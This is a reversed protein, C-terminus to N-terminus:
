APALSVRYQIINNQIQLNQYVFEAPYTDNALIGGVKAAALFVFEPKELNFFQEVKNQRTLDRSLEPRGYILLYSAIM